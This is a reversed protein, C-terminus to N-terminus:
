MSLHLIEETFYADNPKSNFCLHSYRKCTDTLGDISHHIITEHLQMEKVFSDLQYLTKTKPPKFLGHCMGKQFVPDPNRDYCRKMKLIAFVIFRFIALGLLALERLIPTRLLFGRHTGPEQTAKARQIAIQADLLFEYVKIAPIIDVTPAINQPNLNDDQPEAAALEQKLTNLVVAIKQYRDDGRAKIIIQDLEQQIKNLMDKFSQRDIHAGLPFDKFFRDFDDWAAYEESFQFDPPNANSDYRARKEPDSLISYAHSLNKFREIGASKAQRITEESVQPNDRRLNRPVMDPHCQLALKKYSQTIDEPSANRHVNLIEYYNQM